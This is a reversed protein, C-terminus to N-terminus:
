ETGTYKGWFAAKSALMTVATALYGQLVRMGTPKLSVGFVTPSPDNNTIKYVMEDQELPNPPSSPSARLAGTLRAWGRCSHLM